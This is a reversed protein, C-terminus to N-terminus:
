DEGSEEGGHTKRYLEIAAKVEELTGLDEYRGLKQVIEEKRRNTWYDHPIGGFSYKKRTLREM